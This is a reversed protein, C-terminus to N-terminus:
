CGFTWVSPRPQLGSGRRRKEHRLSPGRRKSTAWKRRHKPQAARKRKRGSVHMGHAVGSRSKFFRYYKWCVFSLCIFCKFCAYSVHFVRSFCKFVIAVCVCCGSLCVQLMRRFFLHFMSFLHKCCVHVFWQLMHLMM